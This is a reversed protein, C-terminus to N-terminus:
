YKYPHFPSSAYKESVIGEIIGSLNTIEDDVDLNNFEELIGGNRSESISLNSLANEIDDVSPNNECFAHYSGKNGTKSLPLHEHANDVVKLTSAENANRNRGENITEINECLKTFHSFTLKTQKLVKKSETKQANGKSGDPEINLTRLINQPGHGRSSPKM